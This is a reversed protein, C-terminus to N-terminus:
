RNEGDVDVVVAYGMDEIRARLKEASVQAPDHAVRVQGSRHDASSRSVGDLRRLANGIRQECGSCSMGSVQLVLQQNM